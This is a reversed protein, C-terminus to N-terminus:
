TEHKRNSQFAEPPHQFVLVSFSAEVSLDEHQRILCDAVNTKGSICCVKFKILVLRLVWCRIRGLEETNRLLWISAQNNTHLCFEKYELYARFKEFGYLVTLCEMEHILYSQETLSLLCRSCAIPALDERMKQRLVTSIVRM